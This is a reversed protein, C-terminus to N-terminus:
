WIRTIIVRVHVNVLMYAGTYLGTSTLREREEREREREREM